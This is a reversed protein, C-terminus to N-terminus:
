VWRSKPAKAAIDYLQVPKLKALPPTPTAEGESFREECELGEVVDLM